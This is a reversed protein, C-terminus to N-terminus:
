AAGQALQRRFSAVIAAEHKAFFEPDFNASGLEALVEDLSAEAEIWGACVEHRYRMGVCNFGIVRGAVHVIRLSQRGSAHEWYLQEEGPVGFGVRGYTQYELDLFKASNYWTGREYSVDRGALVEGAVRGQAKGTYWVQEIVNRADGSAVIEACDGVAFIDDVNTRFSWDVLVGRGCAIETERVLDLNPSVGATLGVLECDIREGAKTLVACVRGSGNDVIEALETELRLDFGAERIARNVMASEEAPLVNDWYSQERVLFTVDIRRSHLMEALEIGILGGGVIVARRARAANEELLALDYLGWLGQVGDLDQGPWGFKNPKSGTALLLKDYDLRGGRHLALQKKAPDIGVVWDRVLDLRLRAWSDDEYPKTEQYSMHGMFVYMLAPRSYHYRSEGSVITIRCDPDLERLRRAASVGAVGNGVIVVHM